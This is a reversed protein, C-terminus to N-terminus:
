TKDEDSTRRNAEMIETIMQHRRRQKRGMGKAKGEGKDQEEEREEKGEEEGKEKRNKQKCLSTVTVAVKRFAGSDTDGSHSSQFLSAM